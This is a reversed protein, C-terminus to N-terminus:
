AASNKAERKSLQEFYLNNRAAQRLEDLVVTKKEQKLARMCLMELKQLSELISSRIGILKELLLRKQIIREAIKAKQKKQKIREQEALQADRREKAKKRAEQQKEIFRFIMKMAFNILYKRHLGSGKTMNSQVIEAGPRKLTKIQMTIGPGAINLRYSNSEKSINPHRILLSTIRLREKLIKTKADAYTLYASGSASSWIKGWLQESITEEKQDTIAVQEATKVAIEQADALTSLEIDTVDEKPTGAVKEIQERAGKLLEHQASRLEQLLGAVIDVTLSNSALFKQDIINASRMHPLVEENAARSMGAADGEAACNCLIAVGNKMSEISNLVKPLEGLDSLIAINNGSVQFMTLAVPSGALASSAGRSSISLSVTSNLAAMNRLPAHRAISINSPLIPSAIRQNIAIRSPVYNFSAM